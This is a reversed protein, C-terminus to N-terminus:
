ENYFREFFSIESFAYRLTEDRELETIIKNHLQRVNVLKHVSSVGKKGEYYEDFTKIWFPDLHSHANLFVDVPKNICSSKM